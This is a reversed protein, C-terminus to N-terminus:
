SRGGHVRRATRPVAVLAPVAAPEAADLSAELTRAIGAITPTQFVIQAPLERRFHHRLRSVLRIALLSHGGLEFFSQHVGVREAGIGLVEGWMGAVTEELPTSPPVIEDSRLGAGELEPLAKRDLKGSPTRPLAEMECFAAPMMAEPLTAALWDRLEEAPLSAGSAPAYYAVLARDGPTLERLAVAGDRVGPHRLLTAEIEGLEIRVGRVKVQGDIRGLFEVAGGPLWRALDGSRYLRAGPAGGEGPGFPSPVFAAATLDPRRLYGRALAVGGIHLEGAVGPPVPEGHPDLLYIRVNSIPRGIPAIAGPGGQATDWETVDVAAETPGYLNHLEIAPLRPLRERFRECLEAPLAEGSCIVRRLAGPAVDPEDLMERLLSPVFHVTTIGGEALLRALYGGDRHGGPRALVLRAGTLLPWFFEWVSVDFSFPTKQLVRDALTLGYAEQMWRLRNVIARHSNVAGKPRGTSGSTYIAYAPHDPLLGSCSGGSEAPLPGAFAAELDVVRAGRDALGPRDALAGPSALLVAARSDELMFDLREAPYSPDLPVYAGGAKLIALLGGVLPLSREACIAVNVEPGVGLTELHRALAGARLHLEAYTWSLGEAEVAVAEPTRAAQEDLLATLTTEPRVPEPGAPRSWEEVVQRREAASLLPLESLRREPHAIAAGLLALLHGGMREITGAEFIETNYELELTGLVGGDMGAFLILDTQSTGNNLGYNDVRAGDLELDPIPTNQLSFMVQYLPGYRSDRRPRVAEVVRDFPLEQHEFVDLVVNRARRIAEAFPPDGGLDTRFVVTNVFFGILDETGPNNRGAVPAAIVLDKQGSYRHLVTELAALLVTYLSARSELATGALAAPLDPPLAIPHRLGRFGRVAPRPHDLPLEILEPAGALLDKWFHIEEALLDGQLRQRQWLAFDPYQISLDPLPSPQGRRLAPYLAMLERFMVGISWADSIIHHKSILLLHREPALRILVYRWLPGLSLDFARQSEEHSLARSLPGRLPELLATLDVLPLQRLSPPSIIQVPDGTEPEEAFTTRLGEHRREIEQFSRELAAPDLPGDIDFCLLPLNYSLSGPEMQDMLWLRQQMLSVPVAALGKPRPVIEIAQRGWGSEELRRAFLARQEPSLSSLNRYLERLSM